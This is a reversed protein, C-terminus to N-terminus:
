KNTKNELEENVEMWDFVTIKPQSLRTINAESKRGRAGRRRHRDTANTNPTPTVRARNMLGMRKIASKSDVDLSGDFYMDNIYHLLRDIKDPFLTLQEEISSFGEDKDVIAANIDTGALGFMRKVKRLMFDM